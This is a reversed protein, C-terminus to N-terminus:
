IGFLGLDDAHGAFIQPLTVVFYCNVPLYVVDREIISNMQLKLCFKARKGEGVKCVLFHSLRFSREEAFAPGFRAM